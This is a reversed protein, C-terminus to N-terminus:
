SARRPRTDESFKQAIKRRKEERWPATHCHCREVYSHPRHPTPHHCPTAAHVGLAHLVLQKSFASEDRLPGSGHCFAPKWAGEADQCDQCHVWTRRDEDPDPMPPLGKPLPPLAENQIQDCMLRISGVDPFGFTAAKALRVCAAYLLPEPVDALLGLYTELQEDSLETNKALSLSTLAALRDTRM